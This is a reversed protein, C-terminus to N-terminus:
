LAVFTANIMLQAVFILVGTHAPRLPSVGEM